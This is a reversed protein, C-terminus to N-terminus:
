CLEEDRFEDAIGVEAPIELTPPTGTVIAHDKEKPATVSAIISNDRIEKAKVIIKKAGDSIEFKYMEAFDLIEAFHEPSVVVNPKDYKSGTINKAKRYLDEDRSWSVVLWGIYKGETRAMIWRTCEPRYDAAIARERIAEDFIRIPYGHYLLKNGAEAARDGITGNKFNIKRRWAHDSWVMKLESKVIERFDERKEPFRIELIDEAIRIEAVTETIPNKPRVTTEIDVAKKQEAEIQKTPEDKAKEYLKQFLGIIERENMDRNEIWWHSSLIQAITQLGLVTIKRFEDEMGEKVRKGYSDITQQARNLLNYRCTEGWAIQKPTGTLGPLEEAKNAEAAKVNEEERRRSLEEHYCDPCLKGEERELMWERQSSKGFLAIVGTHGCTYTVDYKAM